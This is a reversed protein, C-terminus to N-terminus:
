KEEQKVEKNEPIVLMFKTSRELDKLNTRYKWDEKMHCSNCLTILNEPNDDLSVRDGVKFNSM